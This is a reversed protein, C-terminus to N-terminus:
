CICSCWFLITYCIFHPIFAAASRENQILFGPTPRHVKAQEDVTDLRLPKPHLSALQCNTQQFLYLLFSRLILSSCIFVVVASDFCILWFLYFPNSTSFSTSAHMHPYLFPQMPFLVILWIPLLAAHAPLLIPIFQIRFFHVFSRFMRLSPSAVSCRSFTSLGNVVWAFVHTPFPSM